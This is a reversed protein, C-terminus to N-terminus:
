NAEKVLDAFSYYADLNDDSVEITYSMTQYGDQIFTIVHTGLIKKFNGPAICKFKGDIYVSAGVPKNVYISHKQDIDETSTDTTDDTTDTSDSSDTGTGSNDSGNETESVTAEEESTSEPLDIKVTKGASDVTLIGEYTTYGGMSVEINHNGYELEFPNAYSTPEGNIYLDAGFPTIEFVVRGQGSASPGLDSLTVHTVEDRVITINKTASYKGNDVTLNFSGERVTIETDEIIQQMAEYGITIYSGLFADYDELVVTGHGRTVTISYITEEFGRVTLEDQETLTTIPDFDQGNLVVVDDGYKYLTSAIKMTMVNLDITFNNVGVYEWAKASIKMDTLKGRTVDVGADVMTGVKVQSASMLKGYKDTINSGGTYKLEKTLKKNIDYLSIMKNDTDIAKVVALIKGDEPTASPSVQNNVPDNAINSGGQYGTDKAAFMMTVMVIITFFGLGVLLNLIPRSNVKYNNKHEKKKQAM